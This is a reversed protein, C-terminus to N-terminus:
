FEQKRKLGKLVEGFIAEPLSYAVVLWGVSLKLGVEYNRYAYGENL